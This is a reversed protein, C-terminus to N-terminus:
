LGANHTLLSHQIQILSKEFERGTMRTLSLGIQHCGAATQFLHKGGIKGARPRM